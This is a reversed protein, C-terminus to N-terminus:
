PRSRPHLRKHARQVVKRAGEAGIGSSERIAALIEASEIGQLEWLLVERDPTRLRQVAEHLLGLESDDPREAEKPAAPEPVADLRLPARRMHRWGSNHANMAVQRIWALEHHIFEGQRLVHLAQEEVTTAIEEAENLDRWARTFATVVLPFAVEHWREMPVPDGRREAELAAFLGRTKLPVVPGRGSTTVASGRNEAVEVGISAM